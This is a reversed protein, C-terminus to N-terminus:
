LITCCLAQLQSHGLMIKAEARQWCGALPPRAERSLMHNRNARFELSMTMGDGERKQVNKSDAQHSKCM